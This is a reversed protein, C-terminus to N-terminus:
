SMRKPDCAQSSPMSVAEAEDPVAQGKIDLQYQLNETLQSLFLFPM